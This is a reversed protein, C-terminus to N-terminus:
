SSNWNIELENFEGIHLIPDVSPAYLPSLSPNPNEVQDIFTEIESNVFRRSAVSNYCRNAGICPQKPLAYNLFTPRDAYPFPNTNAQQNSNENELPKLKEYKHLNVSTSHSMPQSSAKKPHFVLASKAIKQMNQFRKHNQLQMQKRKNIEAAIKENARALSMVFSKM